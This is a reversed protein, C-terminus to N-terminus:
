SFNLDMIEPNKIQNKDKDILGDVWIKEKKLKFNQCCRLIIWRDYKKVERRATTMQNNIGKLENMKLQTQIYVKHLQNVRKKIQQNILPLCLLITKKQFNIFFFISFKKNYEANAIQIKFTDKISQSLLKDNSSIQKKINTKM